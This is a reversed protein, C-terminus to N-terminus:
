LALMYDQHEGLCNSNMPFFKQIGSSLFKSHSNIELLDVKIPFLFGSNDNTKYIIGDTRNWVAKYFCVLGIVDREERFEM